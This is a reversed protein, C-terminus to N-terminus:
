QKTTRFFLGRGNTWDIAFLLIDTNPPGPEEVVYLTFGARHIKEVDLNGKLMAPWWSVGSRPVDKVSPPLADLNTLNKMLRQSDNPSFEFVCYTRPSAPDYIIHIARSSEPLFDPIWGRNIEGASIAYALSPYFSERRDGCGAAVILSLGVCLIPSVLFSKSSVMSRLIRSKRTATAM